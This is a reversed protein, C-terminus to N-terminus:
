LKLVQHDCKRPLRHWNIKNRSKSGGAHELGWEEKEASGALGTACTSRAAREMGAQSICSCVM